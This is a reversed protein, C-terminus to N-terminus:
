LRSDGKVTMIKSLTHTHIQLDILGDMQGDIQGDVQGDMGMWKAEIRERERKQTHM